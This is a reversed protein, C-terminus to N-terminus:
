CSEFVVWLHEGPGRKYEVGVFASHKSAAMRETAEAWFTARDAADGLERREGFYDHIVHYRPDSVLRGLEGGEIGGVGRRTWTVGDMDVYVKDEPTQFTMPEGRPSPEPLDSVM